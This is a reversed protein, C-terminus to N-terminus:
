GFPSKFHIGHTHWAKSGFVRNILGLPTVTHSSSKIRLISDLGSGDALVAVPKKMRTEIRSIGNPSRKPKPSKLAAYPTSPISFSEWIPCNLAQHKDTAGANDADAHYV